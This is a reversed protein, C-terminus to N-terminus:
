RPCLVTPSQGCICGQGGHCLWLCRRRLLPRGARGPLVPARRRTGRAPRVPLPVRLLVHEHPSAGARGGTGHGAPLRCHAHGSQCASTSPVWSDAPWTAAQSCPGCTSSPCPARPCVSCGGVCWQSWATCRQTMTTRCTSRPQQRTTLREGVQFYSILGLSITLLSLNRFWAQRLDHVTQRWSRSRVRKEEGLLLEITDAGESLGTISGSM